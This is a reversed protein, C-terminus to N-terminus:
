NRMVCTLTARLDNLHVTLGMHSPSSRNVLLPSGAFDLAGCLGQLGTDLVHPKSKTVDFACEEDCSQDEHEDPLEDDSRHCHGCSPAAGSSALVVDSAFVSGHHAHCGVLAHALVGFATLISLLGRMLFDRLELEKLLL